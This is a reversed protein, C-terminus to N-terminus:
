RPMCCRRYRRGSGCPCPGRPDPPLGKGDWVWARRPQAESPIPLISPDEQVRRNFDELFREVAPPDTPDVGAERMARAVAKAPGFRRPDGAEKLFRQRCEGLRRRVADLRRADARGSEGLWGLFADLRAPTAQLEDGTDLGHSPYYDLLFAEIAEPTWDALAGGVRTRYELMEEAAWRDADAEEPAVGEKLRAGHFADLIEERDRRRLGEIPEEVGWEWPLDRPPASVRVEVEGGPMVITSTEEVRQRPPGSFLGGHEETFRRVAELCATALRYDDTTPPTPVEDLGTKLIYPVRGSPGPVCGHTRAEHALKRGGPLDRPRDFNVSLLRVGGLPSRRRAHVSLDAVRVFAEYDAVSRLLLLGFTEGLNGLVAACGDKWGLAAVDVSLVHGDTALEWPGSREFRASAAYFAAKAESAADDSWTPESGSNRPSRSTHEELSDLAEDIEPTPADRVVIGEAVRSRLAEALQSEEVRVQVGRPLRGAAWAAVEAPTRGPEAVDIAVMQDAGADMLLLLDPRYPQPQEVIFPAPRQGLAWDTTRSVNPRPRSRSRRAREAEPRPKRPM